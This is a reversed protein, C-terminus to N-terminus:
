TNWVYLVVTTVSFCFDKNKIRLSHKVTRSFHLRNTWRSSCDQFSQIASRVGDLGGAYNLKQVKCYPFLKGHVESRTLHNLPLMRFVFSFILAKGKQFPQLVLPIKVGGSPKFYCLFYQETSDSTLGCGLKGYVLVLLIRVYSRKSFVEWVLTLNCKTLVSYSKWTWDDCNGMTIVTTKKDSWCIFHQYDFTETWATSNLMRNIISQTCIYLRFCILNVSVIFSVTWIHLLSRTLLNPPCKRM